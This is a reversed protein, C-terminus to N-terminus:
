RPNRNLPEVADLAAKCDPCNFADIDLTTPKTSYYAWWGCRGCILVPQGANIRTELTAIM